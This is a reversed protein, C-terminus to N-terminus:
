GLLLIALGVLAVVLALLLAGLLRWWVALPGRMAPAVLEERLDRPEPVLTPGCEPPMTGLMPTM